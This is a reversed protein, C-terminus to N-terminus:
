DPRPKVSVVKNDETQIQEFLSRALKNHQEQTVEKWADAVNALFHALREPTGGNLYRVDCPYFTVYERDIDPYHADWSSMEGPYRERWEALWDPNREKM